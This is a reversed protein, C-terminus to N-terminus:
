HPRITFNELYCLEEKIVIKNCIAEDVLVDYNNRIKMNIDDDCKGNDLLVAIQIIVKNADVLFKKQFESIGHNGYYNLCIKSAIIKINVACLKFYKFIHEVYEKNKNELECLRFENKELIKLCDNILIDCAFNPSKNFETLFKVEETEIRNKIEMIMKHSYFFDISRQVEMINSSKTFPKVDEESVKKLLLKYAWLVNDEAFKNNVM